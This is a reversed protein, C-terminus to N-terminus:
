ELYFLFLKTFFFLPFLRGPNMTVDSAREVIESEQGSKTGSVQKRIPKEHILYVCVCLM